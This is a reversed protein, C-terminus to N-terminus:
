VKKQIAAQDLSPQLGDKIFPDHASKKIPRAHLLLTQFVAAHLHECCSLDLQLDERELLQEHLAEAEEVGCVGELKLSQGEVHFSM